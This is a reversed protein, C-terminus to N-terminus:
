PKSTAPWRTPALPTWAGTPIFAAWYYPHAFRPQRLLTLKAQRLAQARGTGRALEGYLERMLARASSDSVNWLSVIQSEAGALTLARRLGYVGDGSPVAGIGTDCASLVVLQTGWWDYNALERATVIGEPGANAGALALGALDLAEAPDGSAPLSPTAIVSEVFMSRELADLSARPPPSPARATVERAYFGHTAIHLMAPGVLGAVAAKTARNGMLVRSGPFQALVDMAEASADPLPPFSRGPGYDPEAVIAVSSRPARRTAPQLLDRGSTVYSVLRQELEYRGQPDILAEFPVLNLKGDPSLIVHAVGALHPRIPEFVLDDLQRLAASSAAASPDRHMEALVADVGADIPAAPGLPIAEPTGQRRLVYAVYRAEQWHQGDRQPDFRHYHVLEILAAGDPLTAQISAPTVARSRAGLAASATNLESELAEISARRAAIAATRAAAAPPEVPAHLLTSLEANAAALRTLKDRIDPTLHAHLTALNGLLSELALGKRRLVTTLALELAPASTPTSDAQFSVLSETEQQLLMMLARKRPASLRALELQLQSDRLAAARALLPEAKESAGTAHYLVALNDLYRATDLDMGLPAHAMIELARLYLPEAAAYAGQDHHLLGLNNLARAVDPHSPGLAHELIALARVLLPEAKAYAGQIRYLMALNNLSRAVDPHTVGLARVRIDLVRRLLPEAQAYAGQTQYLQALNNLSNAVEPHLPGLALARAEATRALLPAAREYEGTAIRLQALSDLSHALDARVTTQVTEFSDGARTLLPETTVEPGAVSYLQDLNSVSQVLDSNVQGITDAFIGLARVTGQRSPSLPKSTGFRQTQFLNGLRFVGKPGLRNVEAVLRERIDLARILLPEARAYTGQDVYLMALGNLGRAVDRHDPGLLKKSLALALTYLLEAKTFLRQKEFTLALNNLSDVVDPHSLGYAQRRIALARAYLPEAKRYAGWQLYLAALEDLHRALGVDSAGLAVEQIAIVRAYLPEANAYDGQMQHFVALSRLPVALFPHTAGLAGEFMAVARAAVAIADVHQGAGFLQLAHQHVRVAEYVTARGSSSLSFPLGDGVFCGALTMVLALALAGRRHSIAPAGHRINL